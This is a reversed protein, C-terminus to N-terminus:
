PHSSGSSLAVVSQLQNVTSTSSTAEAMRAQSAVAATTGLSSVQQIGVAGSQLMLLAAAAADTNAAGSDSSVSPDPPHSDSSVSPDPPHSDSSVAPDPPHSEPGDQRLGAAASGLPLDQMVSSGGAETGIAGEATGLAQEKALRQKLHRIESRQLVEDEALLAAELQREAEEKQREAKEKQREAEERRERVRTLEEREEESDMELSDQDHDASSGCGFCGRACDM